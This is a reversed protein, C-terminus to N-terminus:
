SEQWIALADLAEVQPGKAFLPNVELAALDPGLALAADYIRVVAEAVADMDVPTSGRYGQLLKAGRLGEFASIVEARSTPLVVLATDELAEVWIGGLGLAAVLGWQPDRAIGVFLELGGSRMPSVLIGDLSANPHKQTVSHMIDAFAAEVAADGQINLKVGGADSKHAIDPSLIKLAVPEALAQAAAVADAPTKAVTAPIVGVGRSALYELAARETGPRETAAPSPASAPDSEKPELRQSWWVLRGLAFAGIGLGSVVAKADYKTIFDKASGELPLQVSSLLLTPTECSNIAQGVFDLSASMGDFGERPFEYNIVTLGIQPDSSAIRPIDIWLSLDSLAAGTLDIPNHVQGLASVRERLRTKTAAEFQPIPVDHIDALDSFIECSGGSISAVAIGPPSIPGLASLMASTVVLEEITSVRVVGYRECVASFVRDDGVFAGTHAAAVAATAEAAGVKLVVIPKRALQARQAASAFGVPDNVSEMFLAIGKVAPDDVMYDIVDATTVNMENGTAVIHTFAVRHQQAYFTALNGISGSATVLAISPKAAQPMPSMSSLAVRDVYNLYGLANPGIATLDNAACFAALEAQKAVGEHGTEAFGSTVIVFNRIGAEAADAVADVVAAGPVIIMAADVEQGIERCSTVAPLGHANSGRMNVQFRQGSYGIQELATHALVSFVSRDSAGVLAMSEPKLLRKLRTNTSM